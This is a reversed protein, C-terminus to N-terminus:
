LASLKLGMEANRRFDQRHQQGSLSEHLNRLLRLCEQRGSFGQQIHAQYLFPQHPIERARVHICPSTLEVETPSEHSFLYGRKLLERVFDKVIFPPRYVYTPTGIGLVDYEGLPPPSKPTIEATDVSWGASRLGAAIRESVHRTTGTQSFYALLAKSM